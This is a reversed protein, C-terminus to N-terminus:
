DKAADAPKALRWYGATLVRSTFGKKFRAINVEKVDANAPLYVEGLLFEKLGRQQMNEIATWLTTHALPLKFLSRDYVGTGYIASVDDHAIFSAAVLKEELWGTCLIARDACLQDFMADWSEKPRTARGAVIRHFERFRDFLDPDANEKEMIQVCLLRRGKNILPRYSKRVDRWITEALLTLDIVGYFRPIFQGGANAMVLQWDPLSGDCDGPIGAIHLHSLGQDNFQEILARAMTARVDERLSRSLGHPHLFGIPQGFYSLEDELSNALALGLASGAKDVVAVSYDKGSPNGALFYDRDHLHLYGDHWNDTAAQTIVDSVLQQDKSAKLIQM